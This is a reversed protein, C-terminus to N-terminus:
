CSCGLWLHLSSCGRQFDWLTRRRAIWEDRSKLTLAKQLILNNVQWCTHSFWLDLGSFGRPFDWFVRNRVVWWVRSGVTFSKEINAQQSTSLHLWIESWPRLLRLSPSLVNLEKFDMLRLKEDHLLIVSWPRFLRLSPRLVSPPKCNM